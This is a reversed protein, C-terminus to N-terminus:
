ALPTGIEEGGTAVVELGLEPAEALTGWAPCALVAQEVRPALAAPVGPPLRVSITVRLLRKRGVAAKDGVIRVELGDVPYQRARLFAAAFYHACAGVTAVLVDLPSPGADGGGFSAPQDFILTHPGIQVRSAVGGASQITYNM